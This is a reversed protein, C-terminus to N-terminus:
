LYKILLRVAVILIVFATIRKVRRPKFKFITLRVGIQGGILVAAILMALFRLDVNFGNTYIQGTLGAISNVLIFTASTAAIVKPIDWKSLHLLPSLFIGGGIGVMGSLFGIGGGIAANSFRPLKTYHTKPDIFMLLSSVLLCGSLLLFFSRAQLELTGGLFALPVSFIVLPLIKRWKIYGYKAFLVVSSTVVVINCILAVMRLDIIDIFIFTLVALYSSGGGFGASSYVMAILFFIFVIPVVESSM